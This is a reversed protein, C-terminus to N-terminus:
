RRAALAYKLSFAALVLAAILHWLVRPDFIRGIASGFGLAIAAWALSSAFTIWALTGDQPRKTRVLNLVAILAAALSGSFSWVQIESGIPYSALTGYSHLIAGLLLLWGCAVDLFKLM